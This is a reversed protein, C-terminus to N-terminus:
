IAVKNAALLPPQTRKDNLVGLGVQIIAAILSITGLVPSILYILILFAIATPAELMSMLAPSYFFDRVTRLDTIPQIQGATGRARNLEFMATFVRPSLKKDFDVSAGRMIEARAWELVEMVVYVWVVLVTLWLLTEMSQADVVRGYVEFMYIIPALVLLSAVLSFWFAKLLAPRYFELVRRLETIVPKNSTTM